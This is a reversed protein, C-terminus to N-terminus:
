ITINTKILLKKAEEKIEDKAEEKLYILEEDSLM